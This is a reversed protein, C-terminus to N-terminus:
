TAPRPTAGAPRSRRRAGASARPAVLTAEYGSASYSGVNTVGPLEIVALVARHDSRPLPHVAVDLVGCREPVLVHDITVPPARHGQWTPRFGAGAADAADRYGRDILGRLEKHDLTSNFDGALLQVPGARAGGPLARLDSRWGALDGGRLPVAVHVSIVRVPEAGAVEVAAAAMESKAGRFPALPRLPLRSYLGSGGRRGPGLAAHPLLDSIGARELGDSLQPTLEQVALVDVRERRALAVLEEPPVSGRRANATMVRLQPAGASPEVGDGIARPALLAALVVVTVAALAAPAWRRLLAALTGGALALPVVYPTYAMLQIFPYGREAGLVRVAAWVAWPAVLLWAILRRAVIRRV